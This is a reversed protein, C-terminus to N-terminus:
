VNEKFKHEYLLNLDVHKTKSNIRNNVPLFITTGDARKGLSVKDASNLKLTIQSLEHISDIDQSVVKLLESITIGKPEYQGAATIADLIVQSVEGSKSKGFEGLAKPMFNETYTLISNALIVMEKTIETTLESAAIVICLKLLHTLRRSSYSALRADPLETFSNYVDDIAPLAGSALTCPGQLQTRIMFLLDIIVQRHESPLRPPITLKMRQGKGHVLIMRSLMGQGIINSSFISAFTTTTAGGLMNVTPNPIFISKSNKFRDTYQSPNDWLNTLTTVFNTNGAGLFDELEGAKIYAQKVTEDTVGAEGIIAEVLDIEKKKDEPEEGRAIKDFGFAWDAIFKEKSSRDGAFFEYGSERLMKTAVNIASSKRSGPPGILNIFQNPYINDEGFPLWINRGIAASIASIFCWRHYLLPPESTEVMQLYTDMSSVADIIKPKYM